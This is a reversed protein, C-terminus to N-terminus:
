VQVGAFGKVSLFRECEAAVDGHPWEFLHVIASRGSVFNPDKNAAAVFALVAFAAFIGLLKM